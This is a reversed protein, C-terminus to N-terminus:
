IWPKVPSNIQLLLDAFSNLSQCSLQIQSKSWFAMGIWTSTNQAFTKRVRWQILSQNLLDSHRSDQCHNWTTWRQHIQLLRSDRAVFEIRHANKWCSWYFQESLSEIAIRSNDWRKTIRRNRYFQNWHPNMTRWPVTLSSNVFDTSVGFRDVGQMQRGNPNEWVISPSDRFSMM